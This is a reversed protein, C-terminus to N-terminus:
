FLSLQDTADFLPAADIGFLECFPEAIPRLQKELYHGVDLGATQRSLPQPGDTTIVYEIFGEREEPPLLLAAQVHPPRTKTYEDTGKRLRRRYSLEATLDGAKLAEVTSEIQAKVRETHADHFVLDLLERQLRRAASTWDSRVSEMGKVELTGEGTPGDAPLGAYGKARGRAESGAAHRVTPLYFRLFLKEFELELKSRRGYHTDIFTALLENLEGCLKTAENSVAEARRTQTERDSIVFLSDTDGYLVRYGREVCRDRTWHLIYQGFGTIAGAIARGSFRCGPTGLVGYFSNMVIKYVYSAVADDRAKARDREEWFRDLITPLIPDDQRFRAGNPAVVVESPPPPIVGEPYGEDNGDYGVPDIGFTRMISPYLSKFDFVMVNEFLGPHPKLIAGGPAEGLPLQDVGLTPAVLRRRHMEEIYLFEFAPISTWARNLSLGTLSARKITLHRLGTRELIQLVLEADTRCYRCFASPDDRYLEKLRALKESSKEAHITKGTGLVAAAVSDLRLDSWQEPGYRVLRLGDLAQRGPCVFSANQRRGDPGQWADLYEAAEQSRGLLLPVGLERARRAIVALDFDIVNWGTIIDPDIETVREIFRELMTREDEFSEVDTDPLHRGLFLVESTAPGWNTDSVMGIALIRDTGPETEIDFSLTRLAVEGDWAEVEPNIFLADVVKGAQAAGRLIVGGRVGHDILFPETQNLDAEYTRVGSRKLEQAARRHEYISPFCLAVVPEGDVTTRDTQDFRAQIVGAVGRDSERVFFSPEFPDVVAAFSRGDELRGLLALRSRRSGPISQLYSHVLFGRVEEM